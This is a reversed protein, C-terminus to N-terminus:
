YLSVFHPLRVKDKLLHHKKVHEFLCLRQNISLALRLCDKRTTACKNDILIDILQKGVFCNRYIRFRYRRDKSKVQGMMSIISMTEQMSTHRHPVIRSSTYTTSL